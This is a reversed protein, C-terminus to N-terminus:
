DTPLLAWGSQTSGEPSVPINSTVPLDEDLEKNLAPEHLGIVSIPVQVEEFGQASIYLYGRGEEGGEITVSVNAEGAPIRVEPMIVSNPVNTTVHVYLDESVPSSVGITMEVKEEQYCHIDEPVVSFHNPDILLNSIFCVNDDCLYYIPYAKGSAVAPVQFSLVNESIFTTVANYEGVRIGSRENFGCGLVKLQSWIPAREAELSLCCGEQIRFDALPTKCWFSRLNGRVNQKYRLQFYYKAETRSTDLPYDCFYFTPALPDAQLAIERGDIVLEPLFTGPFVNRERVGCQMIFRYLNSPNRQAVEPTINNLTQTCGSLLLFALALSVNSFFTKLMPKNFSM